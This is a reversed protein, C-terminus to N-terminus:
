LFKIKSELLIITPNVLHQRIKLWFVGQTGQSCLSCKPPILQRAFLNGKACWSMGGFHLRQECPVGQTVMLIIEAVFTYLYLPIFHKCRFSSSSM